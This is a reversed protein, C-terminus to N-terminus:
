EEEQAKKAYGRLSKPLNLEDEVQALIERHKRAPERAYQHSERHPVTWTTNARQPQLGTEIRAIAADRNNKSLECEWVTIVTWSLTDLRQANLEDRANKEKWFAANTNPGM